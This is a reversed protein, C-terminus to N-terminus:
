TIHDKVKPSLMIMVSTFIERTHERDKETHLCAQM